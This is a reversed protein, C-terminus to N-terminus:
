QGAYYSMEMEKRQVTRVPIRIRGSQGPTTKMAGPLEGRRFMERVTAPTLAWRAAVESATLYAKAITRKM